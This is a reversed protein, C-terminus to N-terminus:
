ALVRGVGGGLPLFHAIYKATFSCLECDSRDKQKSVVLLLCNSTKGLGM